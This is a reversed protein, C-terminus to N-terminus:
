VQRWGHWEALAYRRLKEPSEFVCPLPQWRPLGAFFDDLRNELVVKGFNGHQIRKAGTFKETDAHPKWAVCNVANVNM